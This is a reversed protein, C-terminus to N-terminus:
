IHWVFFRILPDVPLENEPDLYKCFTIEYIADKAKEGELRVM